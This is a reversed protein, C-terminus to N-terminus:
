SGASGAAPAPGRSLPDEGSAGKTKIATSFGQILAAVVANMLAVVDGAPIRGAFEAVGRKMAAADDAAALAQDGPISLLYGARVAQDMTLNKLRKQDLLPIKMRDLALVHGMSMPQLTIGAVTLRQPCFGELVASPTGFGGAGHRKHKGM